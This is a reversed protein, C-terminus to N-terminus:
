TAIPFRTCEPQAHPMRHLANPLKQVWTPCPANPAALHSIANAGHTDLEM